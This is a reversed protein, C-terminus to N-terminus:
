SKWRRKWAFGSHWRRGQFAQHSHQDNSHASETMHFRQERAQTLQPEGLVYDQGDPKDAVEKEALQKRLAELEEHYSQELGRTTAVREELAWEKQSLEAQLLALRAQFETHMQETEGALANQTQSTALEMQTFREQLSDMEAKVRVLEDNRDQLIQNRQEAERILRDIETRLTQELNSESLDREQLVGTKDALQSDLDEIRASYDHTIQEVRSLATLQAHQLETELEDIRKQLTLGHSQTKEFDWNRDKILNQQEALKAELKQIQGKHALALNEVSAQQQALTWAKQQLESRVSILETELQSLAQDSAIKAAAKEAQSHTELKALRTRLTASETAAAEFEQQRIKLAARAEDVLREREAEFWLLQTM